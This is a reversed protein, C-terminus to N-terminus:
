QTADMSYNLQLLQQNMQSLIQTIHANGVVNTNNNNNNDGGGGVVQAGVNHNGAVMDEIMVQGGVSYVYLLRKEVPNEGDELLKIDRYAEFVQTLLWGPVKSSVVPDFCAWLLALGLVEAMKDDGYFGHIGAVVHEFLFLNTIGSGEKAVYRVPGGVALAAAVKADIAQQEVDIYRQVVRRSNRKWRGRVEIEDETCGNTRAFTASYKRISHTGPNSVDGQSSAVFDPNTFVTNTLINSYRDKLRGVNQRGGEAEVEDSFLLQSEAGSGRSMWGELYLALALLVCYDVDMSGFLIQDPCDREELVNKSWYVNTRLCFSDFSPNSHSKIARVLFNAMDDCRAIISYQFRMMTSYRFFYQSKNNNKELIRLAARFQQMNLAKKAKSPLGVRRVEMKKVFKVFDNVVASKTPNGSLSQSSWSAVRDPMYWSLAKKMM